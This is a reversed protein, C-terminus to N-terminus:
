KHGYRREPSVNILNHSFIKLSQKILINEPNIYYCIIHMIFFDSWQFLKGEMIGPLNAWINM